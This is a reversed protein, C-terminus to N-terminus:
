VGVKITQQHVEIWQFRVDELAKADSKLFMGPRNASKARRLFSPCLHQIRHLTVVFGNKSTDVDVTKKCDFLEIIKLVEVARGSNLKPTKESAYNLKLPNPLQQAIAECESELDFIASM